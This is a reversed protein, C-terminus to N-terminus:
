FIDRILRILTPRKAEDIFHCQVSDRLLAKLSELNDAQTFIPEGIAKATYGGDIYDEEVLFIIETMTNKQYHNLDEPSLEYRRM